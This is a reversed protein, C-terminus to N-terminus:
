TARLLMISRGCCHESPCKDSHELLCKGAAAPNNSTPTAFHMELGDLENQYLASYAFTVFSIKPIWRFFVPTNNILFGSFAVLVQLLPCATSMEKKYMWYRRDSRTGTTKCNPSGRASPKCTDRHGVHSSQLFIYKSPDLLTSPHTWQKRIIMHLFANHSM